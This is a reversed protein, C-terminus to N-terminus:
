PDARNDVDGDSKEKTNKEKQTSEFPDQQRAKAAELDDLTEVGYYDMEAKLEKLTKIIRKRQRYERFHWGLLIILSVFALCLAATAIINTIIDITEM